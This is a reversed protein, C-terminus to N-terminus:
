ELALALWVIGSFILMIAVCLVAVVTSRGRLRKWEVSTQYNTKGAHFDLFLECATEYDVLCYYQWQGDDLRCEVQYQLGAFIAQMFGTSNSLCVFPSAAPMYKLYHRVEEATPSELTEQGGLDLKM